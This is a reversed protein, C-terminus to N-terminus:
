RLSSRSFFGNALLPNVLTRPIVREGADVVVAALVARRRVVVEELVRCQRVGLVMRDHLVAVVAVFREGLADGVPRVPVLQVTAHLVKVVHEAVAEFDRQLQAAALERPGAFQGLLPVFVLPRQNLVDLQHM